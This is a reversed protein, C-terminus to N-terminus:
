AAISVAGTAGRTSTRGRGSGGPRSSGNADAEGNGNGLRDAPGKLRVGPGGGNADIFELGAAEMARRLAALNATTPSILGREFRNITAVSISSAKALDATTWDLAARGM